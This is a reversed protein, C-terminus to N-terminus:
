KSVRLQWEWKEHEEIREAIFNAIGQRNISNAAAFASYLSLLIYNNTEYLQGVLAIPDSSTPTSESISTLELFRQLTFPAYDGCKRINEAIPDISDYVDSYIEKFKSHWEPFDNGEVNWHFGHAQHYMINADALLIKLTSILEEM